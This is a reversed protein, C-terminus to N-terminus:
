GALGAVVKAAEQKLDIPIVKHNSNRKQLDATLADFYDALRYAVLELMKMLQAMVFNIIIRAFWMRMKTMM